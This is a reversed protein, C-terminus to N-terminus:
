QSQHKMCGTLYILQFIMNTQTLCETKKNHIREKAELSHTQLVLLPRILCYTWNLSMLNHLIRFAWQQLVSFYWDKTLNHFLLTSQSVVTIKQQNLNPQLSSSFLLMSSVQGTISARVYRFMEEPKTVSTLKKKKWDQESIEKKKWKSNWKNKM